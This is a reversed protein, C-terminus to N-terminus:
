AHGDAALVADIERLRDLPPLLLLRAKDAPPLSLMEAWRDAVWGCDDLRFPAAMPM